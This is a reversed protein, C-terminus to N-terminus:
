EQNETEEQQPQQSIDITNSRKRVEVGKLKSRHSSDTVKTILLGAENVIKQVRQLSTILCFIEISDYKTPINNILDAYEQEALTILNNYTELADKSLKFDLQRELDFFAVEMRELDEQLARLHDIPEFRIGFRKQIHHSWPLAPSPTVDDWVRFPEIIFPQYNRIVEEMEEDTM